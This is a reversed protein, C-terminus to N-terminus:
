VNALFPAQRIYTKDSLQGILFIALDTASIKTGPCDELSVSINGRSDTQDILPLRVLTWDLTSGTLLTYETQRDTTSVPYNTYMWDTAFKTQPGKRDFPTDVNLGTTVIYRLVGAENMARIINRTAQSFLAPEGPPVGLGFTSIVAQCGNVLHRVAEYDRIDGTIVEAPSTRATLREPNRLLMRLPFGQTLLQKVLYKGSKGTGGIVAIKNIQEM